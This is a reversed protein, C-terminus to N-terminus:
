VFNTRKKFFDFMQGSEHSQVNCLVSLRTKQVNLHGNILMEPNESNLSYAIEKVFQSTTSLLLKAENLNLEMMYKKSPSSATFEKFARLFLLYVPCIASVM